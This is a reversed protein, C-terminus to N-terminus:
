IARSQRLLLCKWSLARHKASQRRRDQLRQVSGCLGSYDAGHVSGLRALANLHGLGGSRHRTRSLCPRQAALSPRITTALHTTMTFRLRFRRTPGARFPTARSGKALVFSSMIDRSLTICLRPAQKCFRVLDDVPKLGFFFADMATTEHNDRKEASM